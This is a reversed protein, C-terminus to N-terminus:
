EEDDRKDRRRAPPLDGDIREFEGEIIIDDEPRRPGRATGSADEAQMRQSFHRALATRLFVRVRPVLLAFGISDTFFGPTMLMLGAALLCFGDFIEQVPLEHRDLAQRASFLTNFGQIRILLAGIIATVVCLLLTDIIGIEDGVAVFLAIETLPFIVFILFFIM